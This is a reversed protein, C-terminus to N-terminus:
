LQISERNHIFYRSKFLNQACFKDKDTSYLDVDGIFIIKANLKKFIEVETETKKYFKLEPKYVAIIFVQEDM